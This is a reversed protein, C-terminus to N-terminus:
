TYICHVVFPPNLFADRVSFYKQKDDKVCMLM